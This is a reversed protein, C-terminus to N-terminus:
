EQCHKNMAALLFDQQHDLVHIASDFEDPVNDVKVVEIHSILSDELAQPHRYMREVVKYLVLKKNEVSVLEKTIYGLIKESVHKESINIIIM